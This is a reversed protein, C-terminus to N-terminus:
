FKYTLGTGIVWEFKKDTSKWIPMYLKLCIPEISVKKTMQWSLTPQFIADIGEQKTDDYFLYVKTKLFLNKKFSWVDNGGVWIWSGSVPTKGVAPQNWEYRIFPSFQHNALSFTKGLEIFMRFKDGRKEFLPVFDLFILGANFNFLENKKNWSITYDIEDGKDSSFKFDNLGASYWVEVCLGNKFLVSINHNITPSDHLNVGGVTVYKSWVRETLTLSQIKWSLNNEEANVALSLFVIATGIFLFLKNM